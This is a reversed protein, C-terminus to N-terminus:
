VAVLDWSLFLFSGSAPTTWFTTSFFFHRFYQPDVPAAIFSVKSLVFSSLFIKNFSVIFKNAVKHTVRSNFFFLLSPNAPRDVLPEHTFLTYLLYDIMSICKKLQCLASPVITIWVPLIWHISQRGFLVRFCCKIFSKFVLISQISTFCWYASTVSRLVSTCINSLSPSFAVIM